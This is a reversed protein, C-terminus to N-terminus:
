SSNLRTSKRDGVGARDGVAAEVRHVQELVSAAYALEVLLHHVLAADALRENEACGGPADCLDCRGLHEDRGGRALRALESEPLRVRGAARGLEAERKALHNALQPAGIRRGRLFPQALTGAEVVPRDLVQESIEVLLCGGCSGHGVIASDDDLAKAVLDAVPPDTHVRWEATPHMCWQRQSELSAELLAQRHVDARQPGVVADREM